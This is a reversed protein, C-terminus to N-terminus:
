PFLTQQVIMQVVEENYQRDSHFHDQLLQIRQIITSGLLVRSEEDSDDDDDSGDTDDDSDAVGSPVAPAPVAPTPPPAPIPPAPVAPAPVAPTPVAPVPSPPAAPTPPAPVAPAPVPPPPATPVPPAAPALSALRREVYQRVERAKEKRLYDALRRLQIPVSNGDFQNKNEQIGMVRDQRNDHASLPNFRIEVQVLVASIQLEGGGRMSGLAISPNDILGILQNNRVAKMSWLFKTCDAVDEGLHETNMTGPNVGGTIEVPSSPDFVSTDIRMGCLVMYEGVRHYGTMNRTSVDPEKSFGRGTQTIEMQKGDKELVFRDSDDRPCYWHIITNESKGTYFESDPAGFYDYQKLRAPESPANENTYIMEVADRGFIIGARDLPNKFAHDANISAFNAEIVKALHDNNKFRITTGHVEGMNLMGNNQRERTFAEKEAATMETVKIMGTYVRQAHIQDWPACIHLFPGGIAHTYIHVETKESLISLAAKGGIGSVGRSTDGAHNSRQLSFMYNVANLLMGAGNDILTIYDRKVDCVIKKTFNAPPQVKELSDLCNALLELLCKALTFGKRTFSAITGEENIDGINM